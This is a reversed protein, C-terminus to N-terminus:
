LQIKKLQNHLTDIDGTNDIIVCPIHECIKVREANTAQNDLIHKALESNMGSHRDRAMMREYQLARTSQVILASDFYEYWQHEYLLPVMVIVREGRLTSIEANMLELIKPHTLTELKHKLTSDSFVCEKIYETNLVGDSLVKTGFLVVLEDHVLPLVRKNVRDLDILNEGVSAFYRGVSSKGSAIGGTLAIKKM